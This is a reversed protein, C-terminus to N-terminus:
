PILDCTLQDFTLSRLPSVLASKHSSVVWAVDSERASCGACWWGAGRLSGRGRRAALESQAQQAGEFGPAAQSQGSRAWARRARGACLRGQADEVVSGAAAEFTPVGCHGAQRGPRGRSEKLM